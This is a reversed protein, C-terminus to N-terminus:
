LDQVLSMDPQELWHAFEDAMQQSAQSATQWVKVRAM